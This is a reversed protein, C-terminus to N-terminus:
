SPYPLRYPDRAIFDEDTLGLHAGLISWDSSKLEGARMSYAYVLDELARYAFVVADDGHVDNGTERLGSPM